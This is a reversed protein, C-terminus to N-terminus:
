LKVRGAARRWRQVSVIARAVERALQRARNAAVLDGAQTAAKVEDLHLAGLAAADANSLRHCPWAFIDGGASWYTARTTM